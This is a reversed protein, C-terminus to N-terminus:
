ILIERGFALFVKAVIDACLPCVSALTRKDAKPAFRVHRSRRQRLSRDSIVRVPSSHGSKAAVCPAIILEHDKAKPHVGYPPPFEDRKEAARRRRPPTVAPPARLLVPREVDPPAARQLMIESRVTQAAEISRTPVGHSFGCINLRMPRSGAHKRPDIGYQSFQSM